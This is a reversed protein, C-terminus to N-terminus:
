LGTEMSRETPPNPNSPLPAVPTGPDNVSVITYKGWVQYKEVGNPYQIGIQVKGTPVKVGSVPASVVKAGSGTLVDGISLNRVEKKM